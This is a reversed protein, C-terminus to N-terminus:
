SGAARASENPPNESGIPMGSGAMGPSGLRPESGLALANRTTSWGSAAPEDAVPAASSIALPTASCMALAKASASPYAIPSGSRCAPSCTSMSPTGFINAPVQVIVLARCMKSSSSPPYRVRNKTLPRCSRERSPRVESPALWPRGARMGPRTQPSTVFLLSGFPVPATFTASGQSDGCYSDSQARTTCNPAPLVLPAYKVGSTPSSTSIPNSNPSGLRGYTSPPSNLSLVVNSRPPLATLDVPRAPVTTLRPKTEPAPLVNSNSSSSIGGGPSPGGILDANLRSVASPLMPRCTSWVPPVTLSSHEGVGGAACLGVPVTSIVTLAPPLMVMLASAPPEILISPPPLRSSVAMCDTFIPLGEAITSTVPWVMLSLQCPRWSLVM